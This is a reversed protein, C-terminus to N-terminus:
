VAAAATPTSTSASATPLGLTCIGVRWLSVVVARLKCLPKFLDPQAILNVLLEPELANLLTGSALTPQDIHM